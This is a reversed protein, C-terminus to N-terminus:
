AANTTRKPRLGIVFGVVCITISMPEPVPAGAIEAGAVGTFHRQWLLFDTGDVDLDGDADGQQTSAVNVLGFNAQWIALDAADVGAMGDFDGPVAAGTGVDRQWLLFDAGDVVLDGNADGNAHAVDITRGYGGKWALLDDANVAGSEDFDGAAIEAPLSALTEISYPPLTITFTSDEPLVVPLTAWNETLSTRVRSFQEAAVGQLELTVDQNADSTNILVLVLGAESLFATSKVSDDTSQADIRQSGPAVFRSYQGTAFYAKNLTFGSYSDDSAHLTILPSTESDAAGGFGSEYDVASVEYSSVAEYILSAWEVAENAAGGKLYSVSSDSFWLPLHYQSSIDKIQSIQAVSQGGHAVLAGIYPLAEPDGLIIQSDVAAESSQLDAPLVFQAEFGQNQLRPGLNKIVDRIFEGSMPHDGASPENAVTLYQLPTGMQKARRVQALLWESYEAVDETTSTGMWTERLTPSLFLTDAGHLRAEAFSDLHEDLRNGNFNFRSLDTIYPNDNDNITEIGAGASVDPSAPRVRTLRLDRYLLDIIENQQATTMVPATRGTPSTDFLLPDDFARVSTGFGDITQHRVAADVVLTAATVRSSVNMALLLLCILFPRRTRRCPWRISSTPFNM